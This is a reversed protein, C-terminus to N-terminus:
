ADEDHGMDEEEERGCGPCTWTLSMRQYDEIAPTWGTYGCRCTVLLDGTARFFGDM